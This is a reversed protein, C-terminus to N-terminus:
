DQPALPVPVASVFIRARREGERVAQHAPAPGTAERRGRAADTHREVVDLLEQSLAELEEHTLWTTSSSLVSASHWVSGANELEALASTITDFEKEVMWRNVTHAVEPEPAGPGEDLSFGIARWWRERGTGEGPVEEIFGYKALQRLHYSTQGTSEGTERALMSATAQGRDNLIRYMRMRLPHTFAKIEQPTAPRSRPSHKRETM